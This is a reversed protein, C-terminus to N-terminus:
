PTETPIRLVFAGKSDTRSEDVVGQGACSPANCQVRILADKVVGGGPTQLIGTVRVARPLAVNATAALAVPLAPLFFSGLRSGDLPRATLAYSTNADVWMTYEGKALSSSAVFTAVASRASVTALVPKGEKDEVKGTLLARPALAVEFSPASPSLVISTRRYGQEITEAKGPWLEAQYTGEPLKHVAAQTAPDRLVGSADSVLTVLFRGKAPLASAGPITLTGVQGGDAMALVVTAGSAPKGDARLVKGSSLVPAAVAYDLQWGQLASPTGVNEVQAIPLGSAPPPVVALTTTGPASQAEVQFAGSANTLAVSSPVIIGNAAKRHLTVKAGALGSGAHRIQGAVKTQATLEALFHQAISGPALDLFLNPALQTDFPLVLAHFTGIVKVPTGSATAALFVDRPYPDEAKELLRLTAEIPKGGVTATFTKSIGTKLTWTQNVIDEGAVDFDWNDPPLETSPPPIIRAVFARKPVNPNEVQVSAYATEIGGAALKATCAITYSGAKGVDFAIRRWGTAPDVIAVQPTGADPPASVTWSFTEVKLVTEASVVVRDGPRITGKTEVLLGLLGVSKADTPAGADAHHKPSVAEDMAGCGALVVGLLLLSRMM